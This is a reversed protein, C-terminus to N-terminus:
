AEPRDLLGERRRQQARRLPRGQPRLLLDAQRVAGAVEPGHRSVLRARRGHDEAPGQPEQPDPRGTRAGQGARAAGPRRRLLRLRAAPRPQERRRGRPAAGRVFRDNVHKSTSTRTPSTPSASPRSRRRATPAGAGRDGAHVLAARGARGDRGLGGGVGEPLLPPRSEALRPLVARREELYKTEVSKHTAMTPDSRTVQRQDQRRDGAARVAADQAHGDGRRPLSAETQAAAQQREFQRQNEEAFRVDTLTFLFAVLQDIEEETLALPEIGGDLFPNAEGGKNYHDMVDWLTAMSGDHM